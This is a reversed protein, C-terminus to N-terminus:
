ELAAALSGSSPFLSPSSSSISWCSTYPEDDNGPSERRKRYRTAASQYSVRATECVEEPRYRIRFVRERELLEGDDRSRLNRDGLVVNEDLERRGNGVAGHSSQDTRRCHNTAM